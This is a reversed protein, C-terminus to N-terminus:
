ESPSGLARDLRRPDSASFLLFLFLYFVEKKGSGRRKREKGTCGRPTDTVHLARNAVGFVRRGRRRSREGRSGGGNAPSRRRLGLAM